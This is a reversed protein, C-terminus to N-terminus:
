PTLEREPLMTVDLDGHILYTSWIKFALFERHLSRYNKM